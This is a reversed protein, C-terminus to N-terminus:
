AAPETSVLTALVATTAASTSTTVYTLTVVNNNKHVAVPKYTYNGSVILCGKVFLDYLTAADITKTYAEDAYAKTDGTKAYIVRAVVHLDASNEFIKKM